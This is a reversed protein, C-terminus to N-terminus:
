LEGSPDMPLLQRGSRAERYITFLGAAVVILSGVIMNFGLTEGYIFVGILTVLVLQLYSM